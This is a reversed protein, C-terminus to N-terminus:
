QSVRDSAQDVGQPMFADNGASQLEEAARETKGANAGAAAVLLLESGGRFQQPIQFDAALSKGQGSSSLSSRNRGLRPRNM